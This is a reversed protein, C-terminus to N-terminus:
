EYSAKSRETDSPPDESVLDQSVRIYGYTRCSEPLFPHSLDLSLDTMRTTMPPPPGCSRDRPGHKLQPQAVCLISLATQNNGAVLFVVFRVDQLLSGARIARALRRYGGRHPKTHYGEKGLFRDLQSYSCGEPSACQQLSHGAGLHKHHRSLNGKERIITADRM